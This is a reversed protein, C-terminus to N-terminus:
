CFCVKSFGFVLVDKCVMSCGVSGLFRVGCGIFGSFGLSKNFFDVDGLVLDIGSVGVPITVVSPVVSSLNLSSDVIFVASAVMCFIM